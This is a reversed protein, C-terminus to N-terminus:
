LNDKIKCARYCIAISSDHGRRPPPWGLASVIVRAQLGADFTVRLAEPLGATSLRSTPATMASPFSCRFLRGGLFRDPFSRGQLFATSCGLFVADCAGRPTQSPSRWRAETKSPPVRCSSRRGTPTNAAKRFRPTLQDSRWREYGNPSATISHVEAGAPRPRIPEGRM